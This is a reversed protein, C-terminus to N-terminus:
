EVWYNFSCHWVIYLIIMNIYLDSEHLAPSYMELNVNGRWLSTVLITVYGSIHKGNM